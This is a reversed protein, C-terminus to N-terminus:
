ATSPCRDCLDLVEDIGRPTRLARQLAICDAAQRIQARVADRWGPDDQWRVRKCARKLLALAVNLPLRAANGLDAAAFYCCLFADRLARVHHPRRGYLSLRALQMVVLAVDYAPDGWRLQEFDLIWSAAGDLHLQGLHFDGHALARAGGELERAAAVIAGIEGALEPLTAALAGCQGACRQALHDDLTYPVEVVPPFAHLKALARALRRLHGPRARGEKVLQKLSTGGVDQMLLLGLEPVFAYAEPVRVSRPPADAFGRERLRQLATFEQRGAAETDCVKGIV